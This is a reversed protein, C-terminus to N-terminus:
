QGPRPRIVLGELLFPPLSQVVLKAVIDRKECHLILTAHREDASQVVDYGTCRGASTSASKSVREVEAPPVHALFRSSFTAEIRETTPAELLALIRTAAVRTPTKGSLWEASALDASATSVAVVLVALAARPANV